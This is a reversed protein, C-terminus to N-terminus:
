ADGGDKMVSLPGAGIEVRAVDIWAAHDPWDLPEASIMFLSRGDEGGLAPAVAWRGPTALHHTVFGGELVRQFASIALCAVWIGGEADICIGDPHRGPLEAWVRRNALSGDDAIDFALLRSEHSISAVLRRGDPTIVLGNPYNLDGAVPRHSRDTEVAVIQGELSPSTGLGNLYHRDIDASLACASGDPATPPQFPPGPKYVDVYARGERSVVMDNIVPGYGSLDAYVEPKGGAPVRHLIGTHMGTVLLSGDPLFGLGSPSAVEAVIEPEGGPRVRMVRNREIESYWLWGDHWRPGEAFGLGALFPEARLHRLSV